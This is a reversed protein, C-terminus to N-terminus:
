VQGPLTGNVASARHHQRTCPWRIRRRQHGPQPLRLTLAVAEAVNTIAFRIREPGERAGWFLESRRLGEGPPKPRTGLSQTRTGDEDNVIDTTTTVVYRARQWSAHEKEDPLKGFTRLQFPM